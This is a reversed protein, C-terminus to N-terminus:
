SGYKARVADIAPHGDRTKVGDLWRAVTDLHNGIWESAVADVKREKYSYELVWKSQDDKSVVYQRLFQAVQPENRVLKPNVVTLVDSRTDAIKPEGVAELYRIDYRVNMWHPEWGLFVIWEDRKISRGVQSLMASTSSPVLQWDGLDDRDNDIAEKIAQNFGTGAEIGYIKRDFKGAHQALDAETHVGADWVYKPVALGMTAGSINTALVDVKGADQAPKIMDKETPMWGGLYVDLDDTKLSNVIFSPGANQQSTRYGMTQVIRAAVESKVTVGPWTPTGFRITPAASAQATATGALALLTIATASCLGRGIARRRLSKLATDIM